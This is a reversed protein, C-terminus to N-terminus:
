LPLGSSKPGTSRRQTLSDCMETGLIQLIIEPRAGRHCHGHGRGIGDFNVRCRSRADVGLSSRRKTSLSVREGVRRIAKAPRTARHDFLSGPPSPEMAKGSSVRKPGPMSSERVHTSPAVASWTLRRGGFCFRARSQRYFSFTKRSVDRQLKLHHNARGDM